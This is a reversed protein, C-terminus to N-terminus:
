LAHKKVNYRNCINKTVENLPNLFTEKLWSFSKGLERYHKGEKKYEEYSKFESTSHLETRAAVVRAAEDSKVKETFQKQTMQYAKKICSSGLHYVFGDETEINFTGKLGSRGCRDCTCVSDTFGNIKFSGKNQAKTM